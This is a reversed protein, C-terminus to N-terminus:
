IPSKYPSTEPMLSALVRPRGFKKLNRSRAYRAWAYLCVFAPVLLLLLLLSPYAFSFM